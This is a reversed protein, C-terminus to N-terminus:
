RRNLSKLDDSTIKKLQAAEWCLADNQVDNRVWVYIIRTHQSFCFASNLSLQNQERWDM